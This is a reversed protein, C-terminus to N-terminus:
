PGVASADGERALYQVEFDMSQGGITRAGHESQGIMPDSIEGFRIAVALAGLQVDAPDLLADLVAVLGADLVAEARASATERVMMGVSFALWRQEVNGTLGEPTRDGGHMLVLANFQDEGIPDRPNVILTEWALEGLVAELKAEVALLIQRRLSAM